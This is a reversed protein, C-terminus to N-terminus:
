QLIAKEVMHEHEKLMIKNGQDAEVNREVNEEIGNEIMVYGANQSDIEDMGRSRKISEQEPEKSYPANDSVFTHFFMQKKKWTMLSGAILVTLIKKKWPDYKKSSKM